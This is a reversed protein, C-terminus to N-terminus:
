PKHLLPLTPFVHSIQPLHPLQLFPKLLFPLLPLYIYQGRPALVEPFGISRSLRLSSTFFFSSKPKNFEIYLLNGLPNVNDLLRNRVKM